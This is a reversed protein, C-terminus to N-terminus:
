SKKALMSPLPAIVFVGILRCSRLRLIYHTWSLSVCGAPTLGALAITLLGTAQTASLLSVLHDSASQCLWRYSPSRTVPGCRLHVWLHGRYRRVGSTSNEINSRLCCPDVFGSRRTSESRRPPLPLVTVLIHWAVPSATRTGDLFRHLLTFRIVPMWRSIPRLRSPPPRARLLSSAPYRGHLWPVRSSMVEEGVRSAPAFHYLRGDIQLVQSSPIRGSDRPIQRTSGLQQKIPMSCLAMNALRM